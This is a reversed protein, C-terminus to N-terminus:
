NASIKWCCHPPSPRSFDPDLTARTLDECTYLDRIEADLTFKRRNNSFYLTGAPALRAMALKLLGGHDRQVDFTGLMKASNSFSPPDLFILDYQATGERLWHLVDARVASHAQSTGFGNLALNKELWELYANSLDVSTTASAGGLAAHVTAAGTYCFLNLFRKGQAEKGLLLRLPRHDLFLGTDLYDHLNVLLKAAGEQVELHQNRRSQRTYQTKGKQKARQKFVIRESPVGTAIPLAHRVEMLRAQAAEESVQAPAKYEAVHLWDGYRDVAVAYEPMDADYLRYSSVGSRKLWSRLRRQNKRIRNAFMAAGASLEVPQDAEIPAKQPWKNPAEKFGDGAATPATDTTDAVADHLRNNQLDLLLLLVPIQGNFLSLQKHSRLGLAVGHAREGALIAAQWGEFQTHLCKGLANFLSLLDDNAGLRHGYPPNCVVLGNKLNVHTPKVIEGIAKVSVRVWSQMGAAAINEQAQRIVRPDADYGRIEPLGNATGREARGRADKVIMQWQTADHESWHMFGFHERGLAPAQDAAILAGELLLTASGCMPDILADFDLTANAGTWGARMLVAAALHEKLPAEGAGRRYGRRHLSEGVMDLAVDIKKGQLRVVIQLDPSAPDVQPPELGDRRFADLVADKFRQAGFRTNRISPNSGNFAVAISAGDAILKSWPMDLISAYLEDADAAPARGVPMLIRSALRSWLCARYMVSRPGSFSVSAEAPKVATAGLRQLEAGLLGPVGRPCLALWDQSETTM